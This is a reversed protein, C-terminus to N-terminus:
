KALCQEQKQRRALFEKWEVEPAKYYHLNPTVEYIELEDNTVRLRVTKRKNGDYVIAIVHLESGDKGGFNWVRVGHECERKNKVDSGKIQYLRWELGYEQKLYDYIDQLNYIKKKM